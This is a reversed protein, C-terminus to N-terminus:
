MLNGDQDIRMKLTDDRISKNYAKVIAMKIDRTSKPANVAEWNKVIQSILRENDFKKTSVLEFTCEPLFRNKGKGKGKGEANEFIPTWINEIFELVNKYDKLTEPNINETTIKNKSIGLMKELSTVSVSVAEHEKVWENDFVQIFDNKDWKKQQHNFNVIDDDTLNAVVHVFIQTHGLEECVYVRHHGEIIVKDENVTIPHKLGSEAISKKLNNINKHNLKRNKTSFLLDNIPLSIATPKLKRETKTSNESVLNQATKMTQATTM